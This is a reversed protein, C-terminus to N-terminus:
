RAGSGGQIGDVQRTREQGTVAEVTQRERRVIVLEASGRQRGAELDV